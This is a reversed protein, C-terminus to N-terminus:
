SGGGNNKQSSYKFDKVKEKNFLIILIYLALKTIEYKSGNEILGLEKMKEVTEELIRNQDDNLKAIYTHM